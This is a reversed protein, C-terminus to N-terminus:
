PGLGGFLYIAGEMGSTWSSAAGVGFDDYGDGELDGLGAVATGAYPSRAEGQLFLEADEPLLVGEFPGYLLIACGTGDTEPYGLVVDAFGDDDVDGAGDIAMPTGNSGPMGLVTAFAGDVGLLGQAAGRVLLAAGTRDAVQTYGPALTAWDDLGDGDIDGVGAVGYGVLEYAVESRLSTPAETTLQGAGLEAAPFLWAAGGYDAIGDFYPSGILLDGRGDGDVDGAAGLGFATMEDANGAIVAVAATPSLSTLPGALLFAAGQYAGIVPAGIFADALGDGTVDGPAATSYGYFADGTTTGMELDTLSGSAAWDGGRALFVRGPQDLSSDEGAPSGVLLDDVHDGDVDGLNDLRWGALGEEVEGWLTSQAQGANIEAPFPGHFLFVAGTQLGGHEWMPASVVLDRAGDTNFDGAVFQYGFSSESSYSLYDASSLSAAGSLVCAPAVGDCNNDLHDNCIEEAEPHVGALGDDCDGPITAYGDPLSCADLPADERGWGDGDADAFFTQSGEPPGEDVEGNCNDDVENCIEVADPFISADGDECDDPWPVGDGDQDMRELALQDGIYPCGWLALLFLPM